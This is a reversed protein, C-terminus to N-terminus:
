TKMKFNFLSTIFLDFLMCAGRKKVLNWGFEYIKNSNKKSYIKLFRLLAGFFIKKLSIRFFFWAIMYSLLAEYEELKVTTKWSHILKKKRKKLLKAHSKPGRKKWLFLFSLHTLLLGHTKCWESRKIIKNATSLVVAQWREVVKDSPIVPHCVIQEIILGVIKQNYQRKKNKNPLDKQAKHM